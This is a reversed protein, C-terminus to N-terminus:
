ENLARIEKESLGLLYLASDLGLTSVSYRAEKRVLPKAHFAIGLGAADLMLLDNAGDGVAITQSLSIGENEALKRLLEAKREANVIEGKVVGTVKGDIIELENAHIHDVGLKNQLYRAFYTFGGSLIVTTYGMKNLTRLLREAGDMVQLNDAIGALVSEDLGKLMALRERFSENFDLEGRMARETIEAVKHGIGAADALLDIVEAKILTSDMDFVALRRHSRFVSAEQVVVDMRLEASASLLAEKLQVADVTVASAQLELCSSIRQGVDNPHLSGDNTLDKISGIIVGHAALIESVALLQEDTVIPSLLTVHFNKIDANQLCFQSSVQQQGASLAKIDAMVADSLSQASVEVSISISSTDQFVSQDLKRISLGQEALLQTVAATTGRSEPGIINILLTHSM